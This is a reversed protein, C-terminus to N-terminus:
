KGDDPIEHKGFLVNHLLSYLFNCHEVLNVMYGHKEEILFPTVLEFSFTHGCLAEVDQCVIEFMEETIWQQSHILLTPVQNDTKVPVFKFKLKSIQVELEEDLTPLTSGANSSEDPLWDTGWILDETHPEAHSNAEKYDVYQLETLLRTCADEVDWWGETKATSQLKTISQM